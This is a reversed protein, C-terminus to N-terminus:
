QLYMFLPVKFCEERGQIAVFLSCKIQDDYHGNKIDDQITMEAVVKSLGILLESAQVLLLKIYKKLGLKTKV